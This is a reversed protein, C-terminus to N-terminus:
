RGRGGQSQISNRIREGQTRAVDEVDQWTLVDEKAMMRVSFATRGVFGAVMRVLFRTGTSADVFEFKFGQSVGLEPIGAIEECSDTSAEPPAVRADLSREKLSASWAVADEPTALTIVRLTLWRSELSDAFTRVALTSGIRGARVETDDRHGVFGPRIAMDNIQQWNSFPLDAANLLMPRMAKARTRQGLKAINLRMGINIQRLVRGM